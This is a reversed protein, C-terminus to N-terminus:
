LWRREEPPVQRSLKRGRRILHVVYGAIAVAAVGYGAGVFNWYNETQDTVVAILTPDM